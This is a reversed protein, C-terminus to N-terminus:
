AHGKLFEVRAQPDTAAFDKEPLLLIKCYVGLTWLRHAITLGADQADIDPIISVRSYNRAYTLIHALVVNNPQNGMLGIGVAGAGAVALADMPGEVIVLHSTTERYRDLNAQYCVVLADGRPAKPSQYRVPHEVMARAQYYPWTNVLSVAPIVIRPVGHDVTPYWGNALALRYTLRRSFLYEQMQPHLSPVEPPLVVPSSPIAAGRKKHEHPYQM